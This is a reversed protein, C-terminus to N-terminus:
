GDFGYYIIGRNNEDFDRDQQLIHRDEYRVSSIEEMIEYM